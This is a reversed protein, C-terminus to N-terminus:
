GFVPTWKEPDRVLLRRGLHSNVDPRTWWIGVQASTALGVGRGAVGEAAGPAEVDTRDGDGGHRSARCLAAPSKKRRDPQAGMRHLYRRLVVRGHQAAGGPV